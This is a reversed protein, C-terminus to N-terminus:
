NLKNIIKIFSAITNQNERDQASQIMEINKAQEALERCGLNLFVGKLNHATKQCRETDKNKMANKLIALDTQIASVAKELLSEIVQDEMKYAEQLHDFAKKRFLMSEENSTKNKMEALTNPKTTIACGNLVKYLDEPMFPKSLFADMGAEKCKKRERELVNATMAIIPIHGGKLNTQLQEKTIHSLEHTITRGNECNRIITTATIGDMKPMQMDMLIIDFTEHCLHQLAQLGNDAATVRQGDRQLIIKALDQNIKNDEVLLIHLDACNSQATISNELQFLEEKGYNVDITFHFECGQGKKSELKLVGGMLEVLQKSIALGLGTGGFQRATSNDAQTFASFVADQKEPAIGIGTDHVSFRLTLKDHSKKIIEAKITIGGRSTFKIANGILNIMIQRIRLEDAQIFSPVKEFDTENIIFIQKEDAQFSYSSILNDFMTELNFNHQELSLQGAEIRSFDLIANLIELLNEASYMVNDLLKRQEKGLDTDLVLRSMGIIGNMPTRIEHSMTALFTSKARSSAEAKEKAKLLEQTQAQVLHKLRLNNFVLFLILGLLTLFTITIQYKYKSFFSVKAYPDYILSDVARKLTGSNINKGSYLQAVRQFREKKVNGLPVFKTSILNKTIRAEYLLQDYELGRTNYKSLIIRITEEVHNLAYTWGKLTAKRFAIVREPHMDIEEQSTFLLDGYLDIGYNKPDIINVDINHKKKLWYPETSIYAETVDVRDDIFGMHSYDMPVKTYDNQTLNAFTFLSTIISDDLGSQFAISKGKLEYPSIIGSGKKSLLVMANHQFITALVKVNYGEARYRLIVSDAIGYESEGNIVQLINNQAPDREKITVNLGAEEYFGMEKAVIYGAFQYQYFWKLQITVNELPKNETANLASSLFVSLLTIYIIILKKM